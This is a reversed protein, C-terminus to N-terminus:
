MGEIITEENERCITCEMVSMPEVFEVEQEFDDQNENAIYTSSEDIHHPTLDSCIDCYQEVVTFSKLQEEDILEQMFDRSSM